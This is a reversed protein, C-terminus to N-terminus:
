LTDPDIHMEWGEAFVNYFVSDLRGNINYYILGNAIGVFEVCVGVLTYNDTTKDAKLGRLAYSDKVPKTRTILDGKKFQEIKM